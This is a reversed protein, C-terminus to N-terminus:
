IEAMFGLSTEPMSMDINIMPMQMSGSGSGTSISSDGAMAIIVKLYEMDAKVQEKQEECRNKTKLKEFHEKDMHPNIADMMDMLENMEESLEENMELLSETLDENIQSDIESDNESNTDIISEEDLLDSYEYDYSSEAMDIFDIDNINDLSDLNESQERVEAEENGPNQENSNVLKSLPSEESISNKGLREDMKMTSKIMEEMELHKKKKMAIRLMSTAHALAAQKEDDSCEAKKLKMKLESLSRRASLVARSASLSNKAMIVQNSVKQYSYDLRKKIKEKDKNTDIKNNKMTDIVDTSKGTYTTHVRGDKDTYTSVTVFSSPKNVKNTEGATNNKSGYVSQIQNNLESNKNNQKQKFAYSNNGSYYNNHNIGNFNNMCKDRWPKTHFFADM